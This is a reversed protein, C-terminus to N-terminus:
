PAYGGSFYSRALATVKRRDDDDVGLFPRPPTTVTLSGARFLWGFSARAQKKRDGSLGRLWNALGARVTGDISLSRTAGRQVDSAYPLNSGVVVSAGEVRHAISGRLRGTDIGAPRPDWRREPPTRGARLDEVVGARNPVSRAPWAVGGRRQERFAAQARGTLYLGVADLLPRPDRAAKQLGELAV